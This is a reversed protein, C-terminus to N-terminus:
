FTERLTEVITGIIGRQTEVFAEWEADVIRNAEDLSHEDYGDLGYVLKKRKEALEQRKDVWIRGGGKSITEMKARLRGDDTLVFADLRALEEDTTIAPLDRRDM